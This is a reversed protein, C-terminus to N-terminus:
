ILSIVLEVSFADPTDETRFSYNPGYLLNLRKRINALVEGSGEEILQDVKSNCCTFKLKDDETSVSVEVFSERQYSIGHKFANEIISFLILPPIQRNPVRQPLDLSIRIKDIYRLRVLIVYHQIFELEYYLHVYRKNGEYLVYRMMKSLEVIIEKSKKSDIDVLTHIYNLTNMFFHPRVLYRMCELQQELNEGKLESFRNDRSRFYCKICINFCFALIVMVVSLIVFVILVETSDFTFSDLCNPM